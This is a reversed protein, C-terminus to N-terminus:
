LYSCYCTVEIKRAYSKATVIFAILSVIVRDQSVTFRNVPVQQETEDYLFLFEFEPLDNIDHVNVPEIDHTPLYVCFKVNLTLVQKPWQIFNIQKNWKTTSNISHITM